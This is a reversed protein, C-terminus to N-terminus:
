IVTDAVFVLSALFSSNSGVLHELFVDREISEGAIGQLSVLPDDLLLSFPLNFLLVLCARDCRESSGKHIGLEVERFFRYFDTLNGDAVNFTHPESHAELAERLSDVEPSAGESM